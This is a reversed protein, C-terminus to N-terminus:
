GRATPHLRLSDPKKKVEQQLSKWDEKLNEDLWKLTIDWAKQAAGRNYSKRQDCFFGHNSNEFIHYDFEKGHSHLEQEINEIEEMPISPDDAGFFFLLPCKVEEFETILPKFGIDERQHVLGAGYFSIATRLNLTMSALVSTYGGMCFGISAIRTTDATHLSEIFHFTSIIDEKLHDSTIRSLLPMVSHRDSYDITINQGFRHFLEPAVVLYGEKALRHCIDQIHDNVGFAEQFVIIVPKKLKNDEEALYIEMVGSDTSVTEFGKKM